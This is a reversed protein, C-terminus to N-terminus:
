LFERIAEVVDDPAEFPVFHGIGPLTRLTSKPFFEPIRDAWEVPIVPDEEGWLVATPVHIAFQAPDPEETTLERQRTLWRARYYNFGGLVNGPKSYEDVIAEFEAPRVTEKRGVWHDYFHALYIRVTERDHGVLRDSWPQVHLHQYWHERQIPYEFRRKGIGLYPPNLLVMARVREPVGLALAQAVTAGIDHAVGVAEPIGMHDLLSTV